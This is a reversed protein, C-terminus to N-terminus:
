GDHHGRKSGVVLEVDGVDGGGALGGNEEPYVSTIDGTAATIQETGDPFVFGGSSSRIWGAVDLLYAPYATGIGINGNKGYIIASSEGNTLELYSIKNEGSAIQIGGALDAYNAVKLVPGRDYQSVYLAPVSDLQTGYVELKAAPSTKGISVNGDNDVFLADTPNGDAADLSHGDGTAATTQVTEDPFRFGGISSRIEGAVDLKYAPNTTGIGVSGGAKLWLANIGTAGETFGLDANNATAIDWYVNAVDADRLRIHGNSHKIELAREPDTTGIGVNGGNPQLALNEYAANDGVMIQAYGESPRNIHIYDGNYDPLSTNYVSFTNQSVITGEVNLTAGIGVGGSEDIVMTDVLGAVNISFKDISHDYTLAGIATQDSDSFLIQGLKNNPTHIDLNAHDSNEIVIGAYSSYGASGSDGSRVHLPAGPGTTGIGVNGDTTIMGDVHLDGTMTDREVNVYKDTLKTEGEYLDEAIGQKGWDRITQESTFAYGVSVMQKMPLIEEDEVTVELLKIDGNFLKIPIPVIEGLLVSFLGETVPVNREEKWDGIAFTMSFDGTLPNGENDTLKGQYNILKPVGNSASIGSTRSSIGALIVMISLGIALTTIIRRKM